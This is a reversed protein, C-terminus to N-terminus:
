RRLINMFEGLRTNRARELGNGHDVPPEPAVLGESAWTGVKSDLRVVVVGFAFKRLVGLFCSFPTTKGSKKLDRRKVRNQVDHVNYETVLSM